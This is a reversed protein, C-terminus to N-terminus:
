KSTTQSTMKFLEFLQIEEYRKMTFFAPGRVVDYDFLFVTHVIGGSNLMM